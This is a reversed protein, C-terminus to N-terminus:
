IKVLNHDKRYCNLAPRGWKRGCKVCTEECGESEPGQQCCSYVLECGSGGGSFDTPRRCCAFRRRCGEEKKDQRCCVYITKCGGTIETKQFITVTRLSKKILLLKGQLLELGQHHQASM